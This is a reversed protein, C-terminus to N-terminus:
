SLPRGQHNDTLINLIFKIFRLTDNFPNIQSKEGRYISKVPISGIKFGERAARILIESETEYRVTSLRIKKLVEKKILRFGCQTDPIDQGAISSILWSMFKNTIVRTYPMGERNFMRNGVIIDYNGNQYARIFEPIEEPLHQGDGDMTIVADFDREIVYNFGRILSAGKGKNVENRLVEAGNERAIQGTNDRSADDIILIALQQGRIKATLEGIDKSENYTPIIVCAKM